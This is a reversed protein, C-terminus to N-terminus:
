TKNALLNHKKMIYVNILNVSQATYIHESREFLLNIGHKICAFFIFTISLLFSRRRHDLFRKSLLVSRIVSLQFYKQEKM